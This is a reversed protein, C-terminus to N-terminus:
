LILWAKGPAGYMTTDEHLCLQEMQYYFLVGLVNLSVGVVVLWAASLRPM